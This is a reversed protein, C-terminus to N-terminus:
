EGYIEGLLSLVLLPIARASIQVAVVQAARRQRRGSRAHLAAAVVMGVTGLAGRPSGQVRVPRERPLLLVPRPQQVVIRAVVVWRQAGEDGRIREHRVWPPNDVVVTEEVRPLIRKLVTVGTSIRGGFPFSHVMPVIRSAPKM